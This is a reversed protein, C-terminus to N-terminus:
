NSGINNGGPRSKLEPAVQTDLKEIHCTVTTVNDEKNVEFNMLRQFITTELNFFIM